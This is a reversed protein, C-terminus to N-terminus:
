FLGVRRIVITQDARVPAGRGDIVRVHTLAILSTDARVYQRVADSLAPRPPQGSQSPQAGAQAVLWLPTVALAAFTTARSLPM